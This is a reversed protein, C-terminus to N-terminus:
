RINRPFLPSTSGQYRSTFFYNAHHAILRGSRSRGELIEAPTVMEVDPHIQEKFRQRAKLILDHAFKRSAAHSTDLSVVDFVRHLTYGVEGHYKPGEKVTRLPILRLMPVRLKIGVEGLEEELERHVCDNANERGSCREAWKHFKPLNKRRIFGRLDQESNDTSGLYHPTFEIRNLFDDAGAFYKYVGGFPALTEPRHLNKVLPYLGDETKICVIVSRVVRADQNPNILRCGIFGRNEKYWEAGFEVVKSIGTSAGEAALGEMIALAHEM